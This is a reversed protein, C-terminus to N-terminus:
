KIEEFKPMYVFSVFGPYVFGHGSGDHNLQRWGIDPGQYSVNSWIEGSSDIAIINGGNGNMPYDAIPAPTFRILAEVINKLGDADIGVTTGANKSAFKKLSILEEITPPKM